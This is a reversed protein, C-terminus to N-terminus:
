AGMEPLYEPRISVRKPQTKLQYRAGLVGNHRGISDDFVDDQHVLEDFRYYAILDEDAVPIPRHMYDNIQQATRAVRWMRVEDMYGKFFGKDSGDQNRGLFNSDVVYLMRDPRIQSLPIQKREAVMDGDVYLRVAWCCDAEEDADETKSITFAVHQWRGHQLPKEGLVEVNDITLRVPVVPPPTPISKDTVDTPRFSGPSLSMGSVWQASVVNHKRFKLTFDGDQEVGDADGKAKTAVTAPAATAAAEPDSGPTASLLLDEEDVKKYVVGKETQTALLGNANNNSTGGDAAKRNVGNRDNHAFFDFIRASAGDMNFGKEPSWAVWSEWTFEPTYEYLRPLAVYQLKGDFRLQHNGLYNKAPVLMGEKTLKQDTIKSLFTDLECGQDALCAYCEASSCELGIDPKGATLAVTVKLANSRYLNGVCTTDGKMHAVLRKFVQGVDCPTYSHYLQEYEVLTEAIRNHVTSGAREEILGVEHRMAQKCMGKEAKAAETNKALGDALATTNTRVKTVDRLIQRLLNADSNADGTGGASGTKTGTTTSTKDIQAAAPSVAAATLAALVALFGTRSVM